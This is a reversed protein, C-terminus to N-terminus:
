SAGGFASFAWVTAGVDDRDLLSLQAERLPHAEGREIAALVESALLAAPRDAVEWLTGIVAPIGAALASEALGISDSWDPGTNGSHCAALVALRVKSGQNLRLGRLKALGSAGREHALVLGTRFSNDGGGVAHGVFVFTGHHPLESFFRQPTADRGTLVVTRPWRRLSAILGAEPKLPALQPFEDLSHHAGAVVLISGQRLLAPPDYRSSARCYAEVCPALTVASRWLLPKGDFDLAAFPLKALPGDAVVVLHDVSALEQRFPLLLLRSLSRIERTSRWTDGEQIQRRVLTVLEELRKRNVSQDSMRLQGRFTLWALLRDGIIMYSVAARSTNQVQAAHRPRSLTGNFRARESFQFARLPDGQGLWYAVGREMIERLRGALGFRLQDASMLLRQREGEQMAAELAAWEASAQGQRRALMASALHADILLTRSSSREAFALSRDIAAQAQALNEISMALDILVSAETDRRPGAAGINRAWHLSEALLRRARKRCGIASLTRAQSALAFSLGMPNSARRAVAVAEEDFRLAARHRGERQLSSAAAGLINLLRRKKVIEDRLSLARYHHRWARQHRSANDWLHALQNEMAAVNEWEGAQEFLDRAEEVDELALRIEMHRASTLGLMWRLYARAIPQEAFKTSLLSRFREEAADFDPRHHLIVARYFAPWFAFPSEAAAFAVEAEEFIPLAEEYRQDEHLRRAISYREHGKFLSACRGTTDCLQLVMTSHTLLLDGSVEAHADILSALRKGPPGQLSRADAFLEDEIFIRFHQPYRRVLALIADERGRGSEVWRVLDPRRRIWEHESGMRNLSALREGAEARWTPQTENAVVEAFLLRASESLHLRQHFLARNYRWVRLAAADEPLAIEVAELAASLSYPDDAHLSWEYLASPLEPLPRDSEISELRRLALDPKGGILLAVAGRRSAEVDRPDDVVRRLSRMLERRLLLTPPAGCEVLPLLRGTIRQERCGAAHGDASLRAETRRSSLVEARHAPALSSRAALAVAGLVTVVLVGSAWRSQAVM